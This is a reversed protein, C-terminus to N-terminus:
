LIGPIQVCQQALFVCSHGKTRSLLACLLVLQLIVSVCFLKHKFLGGPDELGVQSQDATLASCRTGCGPREQVGEPM